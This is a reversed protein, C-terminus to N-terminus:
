RYELQGRHNIRCTIFVSIAVPQGNLTAPVFQKDEEDLLDLSMDAVKNYNYLQSGVRIKYDALRGGPSVLLEVVAMFQDADGNYIDHPLVFHKLYPLYGFFVGGPKIPKVVTDNATFSNDLVYRMSSSADEPAEYTLTRTSYNYHQILKGAANYFHWLGARKGRNYSGSAVAIKKNLAQYLGHRIEPSDALVSYKETLGYFSKEKREM